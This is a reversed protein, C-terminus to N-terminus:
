GQEGDSLDDISMNIVQEKGGFQFSVYVRKHHRDVKTIKGSLDLLPGDIVKVLRGQEFKVRSPKILGNHRYVWMAYEEDSGKLTLSNDLNKLIKYADGAERVLYAPLPTEDNLYIFVYGPLLPQRVRSWRGRKRQNMIRGPFLIEVHEQLEEVMRKQLGRVVKEEAGTKCYLCYSKM